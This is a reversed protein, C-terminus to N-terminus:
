HINKNFCDESLNVNVSVKLTKWLTKAHEYHFKSVAYYLNSKMYKFDEDTKKKNFEKNIENSNKFKIENFFNCFLTKRKFKEEELYLEM